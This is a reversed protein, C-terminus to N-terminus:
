SLAIIFFLFSIFFILFINQKRIIPVLSCANTYAIDAAAATQLNALPHARPLRAAHEQAVGGRLSGGDGEAKIEGEDKVAVDTEKPVNDALFEKLHPPQPSSTLDADLIALLNRWPAVGGPVPAVAFNICATLMCLLRAPRLTISIISYQYLFFPPM